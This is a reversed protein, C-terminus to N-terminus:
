PSTEDSAQAGTLYTRSGLLLAFGVALYIVGVFLPAGGLARITRGIAIMLLVLLWSKPSFTTYLPSKVPLQHIRASNKRAIKPLVFSGKAFGVALALVCGVGTALGSANSVIVFRVGATMLGAGVLAWILFALKLHVPRSVQIM